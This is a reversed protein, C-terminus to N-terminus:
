AHVAVIAIKQSAYPVPEAFPPLLTAQRLCLEGLMHYM